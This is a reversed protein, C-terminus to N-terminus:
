LSLSERLRPLLRAVRSVDRSAGSTLYVGAVIDRFHGSLHVFTSVNLDDLADGQGRRESRVLRALVHRAAPVGVRRVFFKLSDVSTPALLGVYLFPSKINSLLSPNDDRWAQLFSHALSADLVPQSVIFSAGAELKDTMRRAESAAMLPDLSCMNVAGGCRVGARTFCEIADKALCPSEVAPCGPRPPDGYVVLVGHLQRYADQHDQLHQRLGSVDFDRARHHLLVSGCSPPLTEALAVAFPLSPVRRPGRALTPVAVAVHNDCLSRQIVAAEDYGVSRPRSILDSGHKLHVSSLLPPLWEVILPM